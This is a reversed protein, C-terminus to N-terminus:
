LSPVLTRPYSPRFSRAKTGKKADYPRCPAPGAPDYGQLTTPGYARVRGETPPGPSDVWRVSYYAGKRRPGARLRERGEHRPYWYNRVRLSYNRVRERGAARRRGRVR